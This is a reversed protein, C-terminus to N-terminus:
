HAGGGGGGAARRMLAVAALALLLAAGMLYFADGYALFYSQARVTRGVQVVAEHWASAPDADGLSLFRQQLAAIRERTAPDFLSVHSMIISSHFQERKAVFTELTAIGVSGGLNRMMNFMASASGANEREIGGTALVSLPAMLMAQGVARVLNPVLLQPGAYDAYLGLNMFCSTAFLALGTGVLVRTDIWRMLFPVCPILILQPLGTWALVMGVQESNYGQMQSLYVPLLYVSGYLAMGVIVNAVSGLGFNRRKLLRLNLLPAASTLEIWLFLVLAITAVVTLRVIFASGFWDDKNGEELVTQVCALGIALTAIGPWDGKALLGLNMPAKPLSPWLTLIMVAGPILNVYFIYEWGYNETLWGGITPGIAPAFTASLAFMAMGVPQKSRPLMTLTITFALPILVGGFFGQLARLIIMQGLNQAFACAVSMVLFMVTNGLLYRRLSFVPALFGTLPIVVIEAVLYATSIWGGEDIGAGIAGQINPLSANTIQINLVAIFAGIVSGCVAMWTKADVRDSQTPLTPDSM